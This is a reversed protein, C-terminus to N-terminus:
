HFLLVAVEVKDKSTDEKVLIHLHRVLLVSGKEEPKIQVFQNKKNKNSELKM